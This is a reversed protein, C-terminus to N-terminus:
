DDLLGSLLEAVNESSAGVPGAPRPGGGPAGSLKERIQDITLDRALDTKLNDAVLAVQETIQQAVAKSRENGNALTRFLSEKCPSIDMKQYTTDTCTITLDYESLPFQDNRRKLVDYKDASFVWPMAQYEGRAFAEKDLRGNRDTPWVVIVTAVAQKAPAGAIKAYEPGKNLFYGVGALYLRLCGSFRVIDAGEKDKGLWPFSVRYTEGEKGKFKKSKQTIVEDGGDFTFDMFANDAM